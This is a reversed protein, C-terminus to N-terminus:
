AQIARAVDRVLRVTEEITLEGRLESLSSGEILQMAIYPRGDVEGVEHVQCINPHEVRAQSRAERLFRETQQPENRPLFKLALRRSPSPAWALSSPGMGGAATKRELPPRPWDAGSPPTPPHHPPHRQASWPDPP